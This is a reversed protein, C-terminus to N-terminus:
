PTSHPRLTCSVSKGGDTLRNDVCLQFRLMACRQLGEPGTVLIANSKVSKRLSFLISLSINM